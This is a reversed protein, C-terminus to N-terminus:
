ETMGKDRFMLYLKEGGTYNYMDGAVCVLNEENVTNGKYLAVDPLDINFEVYNNEGNGVKIFYKGVKNFLVTYVGEVEKELYEDPDDEHARRYYGQEIKAEEADVEVFRDEQSEYNDKERYIGVVEERGVPNINGNNYRVLSIYERRSVELFMDPWYDRSNQQLTVRGEDHWEVGSVALGSYGDNDDFACVESVKCMDFVLVFTLMTALFRKIKKM